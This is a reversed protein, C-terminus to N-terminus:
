QQKLGVLTVRYGGSTELKGEYLLGNFLIFGSNEVVKSPIKGDVNETKLPNSYEVVADDGMAPNGVVAAGTISVEQASQELRGTDVDADTDNVAPFGRVSYSHSGNYYFVDPTLYEVWGIKKNGNAENEYCGANNYYWVQREVSATDSSLKTIKVVTERGKDDCGTYLGELRALRDEPANDGGCAALFALALVAILKKM